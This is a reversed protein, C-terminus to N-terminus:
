LVTVRLGVSGKRPLPNFFDHAVDIDDRTTEHLEFDFMRFLAAM